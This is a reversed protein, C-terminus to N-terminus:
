WIGSGSRFIPLKKNNKLNVKIPKINITIKPINKVLNGVFGKFGIKMINLNLKMKYPRSVKKFWKKNCFKFNKFEVAKIRKLLNKGSSLKKYKKSGNYAIKINKLIGKNHKVIKKDLTKLAGRDLSVGVAMDFTVSICTAVGISRWDSKTLKNNNIRTKYYEEGFSTLTSLVFSGTFGIGSCLFAGNVAGSVTSIGIRLAITKWDFREGSALISIGTEKEETSNYLDETEEIILEEAPLEEEGEVEIAETDKKTEELYKEEDPALSEEETQYEEDYDPYEAAEPGESYGLEDTEEQVAIEGFAPIMKVSSSGAEISVPTEASLTEPLVVDAFGNINTYAREGGLSIEELSSDVDVLDGNEDKTRIDGTYIELTETGDGNAYLTYNPGKETVNEESLFHEPAAESADTDDTAHVMWVSPSITYEIFLTLTIFLAILRTRNIM